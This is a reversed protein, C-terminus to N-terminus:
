NPEAVHSLRGKQVVRTNNAPNLVASPIPVMAAGPPQWYLVIRAGGWLNRQGVEIRHTGASLYAVGEAHNLTVAGPDNIVPNGDIVVWGDDDVDLAFRYVGTQAVMLTGTWLIHSPTPLAGLEAIDEFDIRPDVRELLPPFGQGSLGRYYRALLGHAATTDDACIARCLLPPAFLAAIAVLAAASAMERTMPDGRWLRLERILFFAGAGWLLALPWLQLSRPLGALKGLNFATSQGVVPPGGFYADRDYAFDGRLYAPYIFDRLPNEYEYPFHPEVSTAMLMAFVGLLALAALPWNWRRPLFALALVIFPISAVIQRPGTAIGGGWSVISQGFSANFLIFAVIVFATVAFEARYKGRMAFYILAPIVLVLEPNCYLLGRQPDILIKRLIWLKPYTLGVFGAAQEPFQTNGPLRYAQYSLFLSNGFAAQNYALLVVAIAAAGAAFAAIHRSRGLRFLAYVALALAIIISPFDCLVTWGALAGAIMARGAEPRQEHTALLYFATFGCAAAIPEGTMETAYPFVITAFALILALAAARGDDAGLALAFRYMVVTMLAVLLSTSFIITLWTALAWYLAPRSHSLPFLITSFIAWQILGSFSGGPAKVSYYHGAVHVIDATNYGAYGDIWLTHRELISRMLDFRAATSQDAGQYFYAFSLLAVFFLALEVRRRSPAPLSM